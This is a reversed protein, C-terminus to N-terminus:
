RLVTQAEKQSTLDTVVMSLLDNESRYIAVQAPFYGRKGILSVEGKVEAQQGQQLLHNYYRRDEEWVFKVFLEGIVSENALGIMSAFSQNCYAIFGRNTITVVGEAVRDLFTRYLRNSDLAAREESSVEMSRILVSSKM